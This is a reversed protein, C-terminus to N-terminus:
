VARPVRVVRIVRNLGFDVVPWFRVRIVRIVRVADCGGGDLGDGDVGVFVEEGSWGRWNDVPLEEHMAGLAALGDVPRVVDEFATASIGVPRGSASVHVEARDDADVGGGM